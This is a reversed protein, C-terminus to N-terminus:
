LQEDPGGEEIPHRHRILFKRIQMAHVDADRPTSWVSMRQKDAPCMIYGWGHGRSSTDQVDFDAADAEDLADRIQKKPHSWRTM